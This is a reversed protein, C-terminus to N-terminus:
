QEGTRRVLNIRALVAPAFSAALAGFTRSAEIFGFKDFGSVAGVCVAGGLLGFVITADLLNKRSYFRAMWLAGDYINQANTRRQDTM